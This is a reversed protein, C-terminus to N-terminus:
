WQPVQVRAGFGLAAAPVVGHRVGSAFGDDRLRRLWCRPMSTLELTDTQSLELGGGWPRPPCPAMGCVVRSGMTAPAAMTEARWVMTDRSIEGRSEATTVTASNWPPCACLTM